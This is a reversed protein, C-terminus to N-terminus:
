KGLMKDKLLLMYYGGVVSRAQFGRQRGSDTQHWDSLPVRTPTENAYNWIPTVLKSTVDKNDALSATWIIWDSKTYKERNDLPLGYKNQKTLYFSLEKDYVAQSFLKTGFLKDWIMNYKQSWTGPKDFTLRYHDGDDAMKECKAAMDRAIQMYKQAVDTKGQMEAMKAYGAIGMIAKVSLNVNHAFHGAFDDTCLQNAPDLGYEVLYDTWTTLVKWHKIAYDPNGDILCVAASMILMNGSEEVPMDGGYTQGNGLPYTGIDHAAFPKTWKGSESYYFIHNMLGKALATNYVLFLPVSPYSVDVTGISGNSFNEKSLFLLDGNNSEVLKHASIAQRYALACLEAYKKGGAATADKMLKEDFAACKAMVSDYEKAALQLEDAITKSGNRNWYPRLNDNFYQISYLDDYALMVYGSAGKSDVTRLNDSIALAEMKDSLDGSLSADCKNDLKANAIFSRKVKGSVGVSATVNSNKKAALYLYGWDIHVDDGKKGLVKQEKTGSSLMYLNDTQQMKSQVPQYVNDQAWEPSADFYIAVNHKAKDISKVQYSIYNVPRSMLDLNDMLLPATFVLDLQVGGCQFKYFTQTPMVNASIQKATRPFCQADTRKELIGFDLFAEGGTNKCHAAIVNKGAKLASKFQPSLKLIANSQCANGTDIVKTANIYLELNDDHSYELILEKSLSAQTLVFERRVWVDSTTWSTQFKLRGESGFSGKGKKWAADNYNSKMWDNTPTEFTYSADWPKYAAMPVIPKMPVQEEGMFRYAKNDVTIVGILQQKKGTWHKITEDYLNNSFSWGSTYPDVTVLPYAPARLENKMQPQYINGALCGGLTTFM